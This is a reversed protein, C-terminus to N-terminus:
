GGPATDLNTHSIYVAINHKILKEYLKGASMDTRLHKLPRFIIAHHAVILNAGLQIAEDVVADTVDLAVLVRKIERNLTGLQLGIADDPIAFRKPAITEIYQIITNGNPFM